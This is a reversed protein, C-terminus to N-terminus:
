QLLVRLYRRKENNDLEVTKEEQRKATRREGENEEQSLYRISQERKANKM